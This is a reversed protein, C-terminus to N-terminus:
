QKSEREPQLTSETPRGFIFRGVLYSLPTTVAVIAASTILLELVGHPSVLAVVLQGIAYAVIYWATFAAIRGLRLQSRFVIRSSGLAVIVLGIAFAITFAVWAPLLLGLIVFVAYTVITNIGGVLLFRVASNEM